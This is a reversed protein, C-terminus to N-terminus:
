RRTGALDMPEELCDRVTENVLPHDPLEIPGHVNEQCAAAQPFVAAVLDEARMRLLPPPV